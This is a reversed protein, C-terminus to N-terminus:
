LIIIGKSKITKIEEPTAEKDEKTIGAKSEAPAAAAESVAAPRSSEQPASPQTLDQRNETKAEENQVPAKIITIARNVPQASSVVPVAVLPEKPLIVPQEVINNEKVSPTLIKTNVQILFLILLIIAILAAALIILWKIKM